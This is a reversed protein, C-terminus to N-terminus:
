GDAAETDEWNVLAAENTSQEPLRIAYQATESYLAKVVGGVPKDGWKSKVKDGVKFAPQPETEKVWAKVAAREPGHEDHGDLIEVLEADPSWGDRELDRASQYGNQGWRLAAALQKKVEERGQGQWDNGFWEIVQKLTEEIAAEQVAPTKSTPRDVSGPILIAM